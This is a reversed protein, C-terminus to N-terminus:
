YDLCDKGLKKLQYDKVRYLAKLADYFDKYGRAKKPLFMIEWRNTKGRYDLREGFCINFDKEEKFIEVNTYVYYHNTEKSCIGLCFTEKNRFAKKAKTIEGM